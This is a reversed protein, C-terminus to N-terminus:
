DDIPKLIRLRSTIEGSSKRHIPTGPLICTLNEEDGMEELIEERAAVHSEFGIYVTRNGAKDLVLCLSREMFKSHIAKYLKLYITDQLGKTEADRQDSRTSYHSNM